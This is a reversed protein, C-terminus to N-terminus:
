GDLEERLQWNEIAAAALRLLAYLTAEDEDDFARAAGAEDATRLRIVECVGLLEGGSVSTIPLCLLADAPASAGPLRDVMPHVRADQAALQVTYPERTRACLGALGLLARPRAPASEADSRPVSGGAAAAAAAAAAAESTATSEAITPPAAADALDGSLDGSLDISLDISLPEDDGAAAAPGDAPLSAPQRVLCATAADYLFFNAGDARLLASAESALAGVIAALGGQQGHAHLTALTASLTRMAGARRSVAPEAAGARMPLRLALAFVPSLELM